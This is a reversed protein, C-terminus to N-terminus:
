QEESHPSYWDTAAMSQQSIHQYLLYQCIIIIISTLGFQMIVDSHLKINVNKNELHVYPIKAIAHPLSPWIRSTQANCIMCVTIFFNDYQGPLQQKLKLHTFHSDSIHIGCEQLVGQGFFPSCMLSVNIPEKSASGSWLIDSCMLSVNIPEKIALTDEFCERVLSHRLM